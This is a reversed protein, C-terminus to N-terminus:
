LDADARFYCGWWYTLAGNALTASMTVVQNQYISLGGGGIQGGDGNGTTVYRVNGAFDTFSLTPAARLPTPLMVGAGIFQGNYNGNGANGGINGFLTGFTFYRRARHLDLTPGYREYTSASTGPEFQVTGVTGTSFEVTVNTGATLGSVTIPSAVYSGAASGQYVRATATGTWSLTYSGGEPVYLAGEIIQLLTGATISAVNDVANSGAALSVTCGSAGAKWRDFTYASAAYATSALTAGRQNIQFNGNIIRNRFSLAETSGIAAKVFATTAGKTSNDSPVQTTMTPSGLAPSALSQIDTNAGSAAASINGRAQTQASPALTQPTTLVANASGGAAVASTVMAATAVQTTSTGVAPTPATPTGTLNPSNLPALQAQATQLGALASQLSYIAANMAAATSEDAMFRNYAEIFTDVAPNAGGLVTALSASNQQVLNALNGLSTQFAVTSTSAAASLATLRTEIEAFNANAETWSLRPSDGTGDNPTTGNNIPRLTM